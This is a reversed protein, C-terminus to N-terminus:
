YVCGHAIGLERNDVDRFIHDDRQWCQQFESSGCAGTLGWCACLYKSTLSDTPFEICTTNTFWQQQGFSLTSWPQPNVLLDVQDVSLANFVDGSCANLRGKLYTVAFISFVLYFLACIILVNLVAPIAEILANVVLKLGPRRSIVRLPRFARFTRLSRLSKLSHRSSSSEALMVLSTIVIVGDLVNWGSRLYARKHLVLGLAVIKVTMEFAFIIAFAMDLRKLGIALTSEPDILPNDIALAISSVTVLALIVSDFYPHVILTLAWQRICCDAPFIFLSNGKLLHFIGKSKDKEQHSGSARPTMESDMRQKADILRKLVRTSKSSHNLTFEKLEVPKKMDTTASISPGEGANEVRSTTDDMTTPKRDSNEGGGAPPLSQIQEYVTAGKIDLESRHSLNNEPAPLALPAVKMSSMKRALMKMDMEKTNAQDDGGSSFKDLLLALFLNMM